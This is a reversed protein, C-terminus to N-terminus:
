KNQKLAKSMPSLPSLTTLATSHIPKHSLLVSALNIIFFNRQFHGTVQLLKMSCVHTIKPHFGYTLEKASQQQRPLFDLCHFYFHHLSDAERQASSSKPPFCEHTHKQICGWRVELQLRIKWNWPVSITCPHNTLRPFNSPTINPIKSCTAKKERDGTHFQKVQKFLDPAWVSGRLVIVFITIHRFTGRQNFFSYFSVSFGTYSLTVLGGPPIECLTHMSFMSPNM